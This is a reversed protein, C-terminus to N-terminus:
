KLLISFKFKEVEDEKVLQSSAISSTSVGDIDRLSSIYDFVYKLDPAAGSVLTSDRGYSVSTLEVGYPLLRVTERALTNAKSQGDALGKAMSEFIAAGGKVQAIESDLPKIAAEAQNIREKLDTIEKAQEAIPQQSLAAIKRLDATEANTRQVLVGMGVLVVVGAVAGAISLVRALPVSKHQYAVPLANFNVISFGDGTRGYALVKLALGINVSFENAPFDAPYELPAPLPSAEFNLTGVLQRWTEPAEAAEGVIFLPVTADLPKESHTSNFFAVTRHLEEAIVTMREAFSATGVPLPLVRVLQPLREEVVIVDAYESGTNLIVARPVDPIRGLALPVLDMLYPDLGAQRLTRVLADATNRPFAVVFLRKSGKSLAPVEQYSLYAEDLSVPLVKKAERKVGSDLMDPPIEPLTIMRYLSNSEGLGTIVKGPKIREVKFMEAIKAAVQAEDHILGHTVLGAELPTRAWKEVRKGNLVTIDISTDRVFLSVIMKAM